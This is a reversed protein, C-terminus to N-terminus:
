MPSAPAVGACSTAKVSAFPMSYARAATAAPKSMSSNAGRNAKKKTERVVMRSSIAFNRAARLIQALTM